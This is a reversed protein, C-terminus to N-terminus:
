EGGDTTVYAAYATGSTGAIWTITVPQSHYRGQGTWSHVAHGMRQALEMSRAFELDTAVSTAVRWCAVIRQAM